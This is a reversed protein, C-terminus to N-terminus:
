RANAIVIASNNLVQGSVYWDTGDCICEIHDGVTIAGESSDLTIKSTASTIEVLGGGDHLAGGFDVTDASTALIFDKTAENDSATAMVFKFYAGAKPTPLVVCVTNASCDIFYVEGTEADGITKTPAAVNGDATATITEVRMLSANRSARGVKAMKFIEKKHKFDKLCM